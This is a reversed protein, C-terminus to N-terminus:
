LHTKNTSNKLEDKKLEKIINELESIDMQKLLNKIKENDNLKKEEFISNMVKDTEETEFNGM